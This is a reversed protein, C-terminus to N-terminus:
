PELFIEVLELDPIEAVGFDTYKVLMQDTNFRVPIDFEFGATIEVGSEPPTAFVVKGLSCDIQYHVNETQLEGNLAILVTLPRPKQIFRSVQRETDGYRKILYFDSSIGNGIEILQDTESIKSSVSCSKYDGWDKFRFGYKNGARAEFFSVLEAIEHVAKSGFSIFYRRKSRSWPHNILEFGNALEVIESKREPGGIAGFAWADSFRVEHFSM